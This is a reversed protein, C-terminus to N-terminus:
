DEVCGIGNSPSDVCKANYRSRLLQGCAYIYTFVDQTDQRGSRARVFFEGLPLFNTPWNQKVRNKIPNFFITPRSQPSPNGARYLPHIKEVRVPIREIKRPSQQQFSLFLPSISLRNLHFAIALSIFHNMGHNFLKANVITRVNVM